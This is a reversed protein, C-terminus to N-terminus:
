GHMEHRAVNWVYGPDLQGDEPLNECMDYLIEFLRSAATLFHDTHSLITVSERGINEWEMIRDQNIVYQPHSKGLYIHKNFVEKQHKM